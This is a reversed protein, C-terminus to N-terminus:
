FWVFAKFVIPCWYSFSGSLRHVLSPPAILVMRFRGQFGISWRPPRTFGYPFSVFGDSFWVFVVRFTSPGALPVMLVMRFGWVVMLCGHSFLGSLRHVLSPSSLFWVFVKYFWLVGIRFRGGCGIFWRPTVILVNGFWQFFMRFCVWLASPGILPVILVM